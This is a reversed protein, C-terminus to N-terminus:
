SESGIVEIIDAGGIGVHDPSHPIVTSDKVEFGNM